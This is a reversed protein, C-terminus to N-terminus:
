LKWENKLVSYVELDIFRSNHKEGAREIGEFAFGLKKPINSSRHNGVGCKIQVRNMAMKGFARNIMERCSKSVIGRGEYERVIWYGIELKKNAKDIDKYGILGTTIGNVVMCFVIERSYAKDLQEIFIRTNSPSFTLEVFPLWPSLHERNDDILQFISEADNLNIKRLVLETSIKILNNM